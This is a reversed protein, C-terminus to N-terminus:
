NVSISWIAALVAQGKEIKASKMEEVRRIQKADSTCGVLSRVCGFQGLIEFHWKVQKPGLVRWTLNCLKM